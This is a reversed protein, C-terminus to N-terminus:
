KAVVGESSAVPVPILSRILKGNPLEYILVQGDRSGAALRTGDKNLSVSYVTAPLNPILAVRTRDDTKYIRIERYAGAVALLKRDHSTSMTLVAGPQSEMGKVYQARKTIPRAGNGAGSVEIGSLAIKFEYGILTRAHGSSFAFTASSSVAHVRETSMDISRLLKGTEVSCVKTAKDRGASILMKGDPTWDVDFVWDSHLPFSRVDSKDDLSVIHVAGDTGGVAVLTGDPSFCGRFLTDHGVRRSNILTGSPAEYFRVEGFSSPSGGMAALKTGDPSFEVHTLLDCETPIRQPPADGEVPFLVIESRCAAAIRTGDPSISVSTVAPAFKYTDPIRVKPTLDGPDSDDKAGGLIWKRIIEIKAASLAPQQKPMEPQDGTIMDLLQSEAVNGAVLSPGGDGGKLMDAVSDMSLGGKDDARSHCGRCHRRFIPWVDRKFSVVDTSVTAAPDTKAANAAQAVLSLNVTAIITLCILFIRLM